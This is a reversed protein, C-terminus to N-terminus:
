LKVYHVQNIELLLLFTSAHSTKESSFDNIKRHYGYSDDQFCIM